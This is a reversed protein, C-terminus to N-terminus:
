LYLKSRPPLALAVPTNLSISSEGSTWLSVHSFISMDTQAVGSEDWQWCGALWDRFYGFETGHREGFPDDGPDTASYVYTHGKLAENGQFFLRDCTLTEKLPREIYVEKISVCGDFAYMSITWFGTGRIFVSELVACNTFAYQEIKTVGKGIVVKRLSSCDRFLNYGATNKTNVVEDPIIFEQLNSNAFCYEMLNLVTNPITLATGLYGYFAYKGITDISPNRGWTITAATGQFAYMGIETVPNPIKVTQLNTCGAFAYAGIKKLKESNTLIKLETHGEFVHDGLATVTNPIKVTEAKTFYYGELVGDNIEFLAHHCVSCEKPETLDFVVGEGLDYQHPEFDFQIDCGSCAYYHGEPSFTYTEGRSHAVKGEIYDCGEDTCEMWHFDKDKMQKLHHEALIKFDISNQKGKVTVTLTAQKDEGKDVSKVTLILKKTAYEFQADLYEGGELTYSIDKEAIETEPFFYLGIEVKDDKKLDTHSEDYSLAFGGFEEKEQVSLTWFARHKSLDVDIVYTHATVIRTSKYDNTNEYDKDWGFVANSLKQLMAAYSIIATLSKDIGCFAIQFQAGFDLLAVLRFHTESLM